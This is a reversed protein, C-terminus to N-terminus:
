YLYSEPSTKINESKSFALITLVFHLLFLFLQLNVSAHLNFSTDTSNGKINFFIEFISFFM